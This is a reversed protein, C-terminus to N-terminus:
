LVWVAGRKTTASAPGDPDFWRGGVKRGPSHSVIALQCSVAPPRPRVIAGYYDIVTLLSSVLLLISAERRKTNQTTPMM